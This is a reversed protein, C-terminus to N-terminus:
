RHGRPRGSFRAPALRTQVAQASVKDATKNRDELLLDMLCALCGALGSVKAAIAAEANAAVASSGTVACAASTTRLPAIVEAAPSFIPPTVTEALASPAVM